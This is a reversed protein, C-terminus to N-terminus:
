VTTIALIGLGAFLGAMGFKALSLRKCLINGLVESRVVFYTMAMIGVLPLIFVVNYLLLYVRQRSWTGCCSSGRCAPRYILNNPRQSCPRRLRWFFCPGARNLVRPLVSLLLIMLNLTLIRLMIENDIANSLRSRIKDDLLRKFMSFEREIQWRQGYIPIPWHDAIFRRYFSGPRHRPSKPPRGRTPPIIGLVGLKKWLFAHHHEGDYGVDGLLADFPHRRHARRPPRHFELDDPKPGRDIVASVKPFRHYRRGSRHGFYASASAANMGTSDIGALESRDKLLRCERALAVTADL